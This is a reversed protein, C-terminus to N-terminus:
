KQGLLLSPRLVFSVVLTLHLLFWNLSDSVSVTSRFPLHFISSFWFCSDSSGDTSTCVLSSEIQCDNRFKWLVRSKWVVIISSFLNYIYYMGGVPVSYILATQWLWFFFRGLWSFFSSYYFVFSTMDIHRWSTVIGGRSMTWDCFSMVHCSLSLPAEQCYTLQYPMLSDHRQRLNSEGNCCFHIKKGPDVKLASDWQTDTCWRTCDSANVDTRVNFIRYDM